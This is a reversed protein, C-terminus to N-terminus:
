HRSATSLRVDLPLNHVERSLGDKSVAHFYRIACGLAVFTQQSAIAQFRSFTQPDNGTFSDM